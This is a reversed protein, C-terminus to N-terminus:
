EAADAPLTRQGVVDADVTSAIKKSFFEAIFESARRQTIEVVPIPGGAPGSHVVRGEHVVRHPFWKQGETTRFARKVADREATSIEDFKGANAKALAANRALEDISLGTATATEEVETKLAVCFARLEPHVDLWHQVSQRTCGLEIAAHSPIGRATRLARKIMAMTFRRPSRKIDVARPNPPPPNVKRRPM